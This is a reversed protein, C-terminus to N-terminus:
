KASEQNAQRAAFNIRPRNKMKEARVRQVYTQALKIQTEPKLKNVTATIQRTLKTRETPTTRKTAKSIANKVEYQIIAKKHAKMLAAARQNTTKPRKSKRSAAAVSKAVGKGVRGMAGPDRRVRGRMAGAMPARKMRDLVAGRQNGAGTRLRGGRVTAGNKGVGTIKGSNDRTIRNTGRQARRAAPKAKATTTGTSAFRGRGDRVYTRRASRRTM